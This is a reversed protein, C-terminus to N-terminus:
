AVDDAPDTQNGINTAHESKESSSYNYASFIALLDLIHVFILMTRHCVAAQFIASSVSPTRVFKNMLFLFDFNTNRTRMATKMTQMRIKAPKAAIANHRM